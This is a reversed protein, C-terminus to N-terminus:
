YDSDQNKHIWLLKYVKEFMVTGLKKRIQEKQMKIRENMSM